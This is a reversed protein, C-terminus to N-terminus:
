RPFGPSTECRLRERRFGEPVSMGFSTPSLPPNWAVARLDLRLSANREPLTLVVRRPLTADCSPGSPPVPEDLGDPDVLPPALPAPAHKDTELRWLVRRGFRVEAARLELRQEDWAAERLSTPVTLEVTEALGQGEFTLVWAGDGDWELQSRDHEIVPVTGRLVTVLLAPPIPLGLWAQLTCADNPGESFVRNRPDVAYMAEDAALQLLAVGFTTQVELRLRAAHAALLNAEGRFSTTPSVLTLTAEARSAAGCGHDHRLSALAHDASPPASKPRPVAACGASLSAFTLLALLLPAV